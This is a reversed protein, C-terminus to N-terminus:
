PVYQESHTLRSTRVLLLIYTCIQLISEHVSSIYM